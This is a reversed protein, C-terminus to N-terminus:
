SEVSLFLCFRYFSKSFESRSEDPAHTSKRTSSYEENATAIDVCVRKMKSTELLTMM